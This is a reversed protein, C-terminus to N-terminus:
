LFEEPHTRRYTRDAHCCACVVECKEVESWFKQTSGRRAITSIDGLKKGSIHDFQMQWPKFERHCDKCPVRKLRNMEEVLKECNSRVCDLHRRKIAPDRERRSVHYANICQKCRAKRVEYGKRRAFSFNSIPKTTGCERCSKHAPENARRSYDQRKAM